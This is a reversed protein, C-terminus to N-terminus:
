SVLEFDMVGLQAQFYARRFEAETSFNNAAMRRYALQVHCAPTNFPFPDFKITRPGLPTLTMRVGEGEASGYDVPVPEFYEAYPEDCAFYLGLLDWVQLLRYNIRMQQADWKNDILEHERRAEHTAIFADVAAPQQRVAHPPHVMAKYRGRWLGTRHMGVIHGAYPDKQLFWDICWQYEELKSEDTPINRFGPTDGSAETYAPATEYRLWGFDHFAAARAVSEYPEPRAFQANGWHAGFQGVLRSHDTQGILLTSGDPAERVIV